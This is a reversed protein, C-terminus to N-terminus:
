GIFDLLQYDSRSFVKLRIDRADNFEQNHVGWEKLLAVHALPNDVQDEQRVESGVLVAVDTVTKAGPAAVNDVDKLWRCILYRDSLFWQPHDPELLALEVPLTFEAQHRMLISLPQDTPKPAHQVLFAVLDPPLCKTIAAGLVRLSRWAEGPQTEDYAERIET